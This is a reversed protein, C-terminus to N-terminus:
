HYSNVGRFPNSLCVPSFLSKPNPWYTIHTQNSSISHPSLIALHSISTFIQTIKSPQHHLYPAFPLLYAIIDINNLLLLNLYLYKTSPLILQLYNNPLILLGHLAHPPILVLNIGPIQPLHFLNPPLPNLQPSLHFPHPHLQLSAFLLTTTIPIGIPVLLQHQPFHSVLNSIM